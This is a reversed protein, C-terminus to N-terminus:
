YISGFMDALGNVANSVQEDAEDIVNVANQINKGFTSMTDGIRGVGPMMISQVEDVFADAGRGVWVGDMVMKVMMQMPSFAQEQVVNLQQMLQSLVNEVVKRAFRILAEKIM